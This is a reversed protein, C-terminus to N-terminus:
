TRRQLQTQTIPQTMRITICVKQFLWIFDNNELFTREGRQNCLMEGVAFQTESNM